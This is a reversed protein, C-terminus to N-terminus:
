TQRVAANVSAPYVGTCWNAYKRHRGKVVDFYLKMLDATIPGIEGSGVTRHDVQSVASIQAGTGCLFIEDAIYLETRDIPCEITELGMEDRALQIVTARTIGELINESHSPTILKGDRVIFLNEGSGESVHGAATLMIAEDYGNEEAETRALASNIYLGTAKARAPIMNDDIRQWSCVGCSIPKNVDLYDGFPVAYLFFDDPYFEIGTETRHAMSLGVIETSKYVVPRVYVDTRYGNRAAVNTAIEVLEEVSFRLNMRLIRASRHLREFHEAVRFMYLQEDDENWYGRIGEFAGTGYNLAHTRVSVKADEIPVYEGEFFAWEAAM